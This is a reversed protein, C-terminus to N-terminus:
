IQIIIVIGAAGVGGAGSNNANLSAGGGGGGGGPFGGVAGTQGVGAGNAAGGGGGSGGEPSSAGATGGVGPQAGGVVGGAGGATNKGGPAGASGPKGARVVNAADIGGGAGGSGPAYGTPPPTVGTAGDVDGAGGNAGLGGTQNRPAATSWTGGVSAAATGGLPAVNAPVARAHTGFNSITGVAGPNGNTDNVAIAAGGAGGAGVVVTETAGLLSSPLCFLAVDGPAGGGGGYRATAAAGRRGSAGGQGGSILLGFTLTSNVRKTWTGGATFVDIQPLLGVSMSALFTAVDPANLLAGLVDSIDFEGATGIPVNRLVRSYFGNTVTVKYGRPSGAAYLNFMGESDSIFPNALGGAGAADAYLPALTNDSEKRVEVSSLPAVKLGSLTTFIVSNFSGYAAM